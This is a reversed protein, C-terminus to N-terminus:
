FPTEEGFEADIIANVLDEDTHRTFVKFDPAASKLIKKLAARDFSELESRRAASEGEDEEDEDEEDGEEEEDEEEDGEEVEDEDSEDEDEDDALAAAGGEDEEAFEHELIREILEDKKGSTPLDYDEKLLKRLAPIGMGKLEEVRAEYEEDDGEEDGGEMLDSEDEDDAVFKPGKKSATGADAGRFPYIGSVEPRNEGEYPRSRSTSSM